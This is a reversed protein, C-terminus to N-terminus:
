QDAFRCTALGSNLILHVEDSILKGDQDFTVREMGTGSLDPKADIAKSKYMAFEYYYSWEGPAAGKFLRINKWGDGWIQRPFKSYLVTLYKRLDSKSTVGGPVCLDRYLLKSRDTYHSVIKEPNLPEIAAPDFDNRANQYFKLLGAERLSRRDFKSPDFGLERLALLGNTEQSRIKVLEVRKDSDLPAAAWAHSTLLAALLFAPGSYLKMLM